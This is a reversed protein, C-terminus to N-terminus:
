LEEGPDIGMARVTAKFEEPTADAEYRQHDRTAEDKAAIIRAQTLARRAKAEGIGKVATLDPARLIDALTGLGAAIYKQRDPFDPPLAPQAPEAGAEPASALISEDEGAPTYNILGQKALALAMAEPIDTTGGPESAPFSVATRSGPERWRYERDLYVSAM